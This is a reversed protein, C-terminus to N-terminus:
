GQIVKVATVVDVLEPIPVENIQRPWAALVWNARDVRSQAATLAHGVTTAKDAAWRLPPCPILADLLLLTFATNYATTALVRNM